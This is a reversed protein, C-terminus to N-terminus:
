KLAQRIVPDAFMSEMIEKYRVSHMDFVNYKTSAPNSEQAQFTKGQWTAAARSSIQMSFEYKYSFNGSLGGADWNSEVVRIVIYRAAGTESLMTWASELTAGPPMRVVTVSHGADSLGDKLMGALLDVFREDAPRNPRDITFPVGFAGRVIGEFKPTKEGALVYPRAEIVAVAVNNYAGQYLKPTGEGKEMPTACGGLLSVALVISLIGGRLRWDM